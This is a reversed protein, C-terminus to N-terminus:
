RSLSHLAYRTESVRRDASRKNKRTFPSARALCPVSRASLPYQGDSISIERRKIASTSTLGIFSYHAYQIHSPYPSVVPPSLRRPPHSPPSPSPSLRLSRALPLSGAFRVFCRFRIVRPPRGYKEHTFKGVAGVRVHLQPIAPLLTLLISLLAQFRKCYADSGAFLFTPLARSRTTMPRRHVVFRTLILSHGDHRLMGWAPSSRYSFHGNECYLSVDLCASKVDIQFDVIVLGTDIICSTLHTGIIKNISTNYPRDFFQETM